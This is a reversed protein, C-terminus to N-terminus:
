NPTSPATASRSRPPSAATPTSGTRSSRMTRAASSRPRINAIVYWDGMFKPLDVQSATTLPAHSSRCASLLSLLSMTILVKLHHMKM